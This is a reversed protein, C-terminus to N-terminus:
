LIKRNVRTFTNAAVPFSPDANHCTITDAMASNTGMYVRVGRNMMLTRSSYARSTRPPCPSPTSVPNPKDDDPRPAPPVPITNASTSLFSPISSTSSIGMSTPVVRGSYTSVAWRSTSGVAIARRCPPKALQRTM